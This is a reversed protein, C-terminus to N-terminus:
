LCCVKLASWVDPYIVLDELGENLHRADEKLTETLGSLYYSVSVANLSSCLQYIREADSKEIVDFNSLDIILTHIEKKQM